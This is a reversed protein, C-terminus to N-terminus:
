PIHLTIKNGKKEIIGKQKLHSLERMMASRDVCLYDALDTLTFPLLFTRSQKNESIIDFYALIKDRISKKTLLEIRTNLKLTNNMILIPFNKSLEEHFKCKPNCKNIINDYIFCLVDCNEKAEVFLENNTNTPYLVEGFIDNKTFHGLITKNGNFDYRILNATGSLLIFMQNRKEMYTTILEGKVFSRRSVKSCRSNFNEIFKSNEFKTRM